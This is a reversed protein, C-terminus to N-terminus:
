CFYLLFFDTTILPKFVCGCVCVCVCFRFLNSTKKTNKKTKEKIEKFILSKKFIPSM